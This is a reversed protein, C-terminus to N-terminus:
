QELDNNSNSMTQTAPSNTISDSASGVVGFQRTQSDCYSRSRVASLLVSGGMQTQNQTSAVWSLSPSIAASPEYTGNTQGTATQELFALGALVFPLGKSGHVKLRM